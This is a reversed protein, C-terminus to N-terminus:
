ALSAKYLLRLQASQRTGHEQRPLASLLMQALRFVGIMMMVVHKSLVPLCPSEVIGGAGWVFKTVPPIFIKLQLSAHNYRSLLWFVDQM